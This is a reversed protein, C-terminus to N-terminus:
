YTSLLSIQDDKVWFLEETTFINRIDCKLFYKKFVTLADEKSDSRCVAVDDFEGPLLSPYHIDDDKPDFREGKNIYFYLEM